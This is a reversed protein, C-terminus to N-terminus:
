SVTLNIIGLVDNGWYDLPANQLLCAFKSSILCIVHPKDCRDGEGNSVTVADDRMSDNIRM